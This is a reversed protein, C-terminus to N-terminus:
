TLGYESFCFAAQSLKKQCYVTELICHTTDTHFFNSYVEQPYVANHETIDNDHVNYLHHMISEHSMSICIDPETSIHVHPRLGLTSM